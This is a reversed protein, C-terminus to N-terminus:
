YKGVTDAGPSEATGERHEEAGDRTRGADYSAVAHDFNHPLLSFILFINVSSM